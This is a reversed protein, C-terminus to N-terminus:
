SFILFFINVKFQDLSLFNLKDLIEIFCSKGYFLNNIDEKTQQAAANALKENKNKPKERIEPNEDNSQADEKTKDQYKEYTKLFNEAKNLKNVNSSNNYKINNCNKDNNRNPNSSFGKEPHKSKNDLNKNYNDSTTSEANITNSDKALYNCLLNNDEEENDRSFAKKFNKQENIASQSNSNYISSIFRNNKSYKNISSSNSNIDNIFIGKKNEQFKSIQNFKCFDLFDRISGTDQIFNIEDNWPNYESEMKKNLKTEAILNAEAAAKTDQLLCKTDKSQFNVIPNKAHQINESAFAARAKNNSSSPKSLIQKENPKKENAAAIVKKQNTKNTETYANTQTKVKIKEITINLNLNDSKQSNKNEKLLLTKNKDVEKNLKSEYKM